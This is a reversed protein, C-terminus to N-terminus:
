KGARLKRLENAAHLYYNHNGDTAVHMGELLDCCANLEEKRAHALLHKIHSDLAELVKKAAEDTPIDPNAWIGDKSIRLVETQQDNVKGFFLISNTPQLDQLKYGPWPSAINKMDILMDQVRQDYTRPGTEAKCRRCQLRDTNALFHWDHKCDTM